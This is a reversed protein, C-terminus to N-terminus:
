EFLGGTIKWSGDIKQLDATMGAGIVRVKATDGNIQADGVEGDVLVNRIVQPLAAHLRGIARLCTTARIPALGLPGTALVSLVKRQAAPTLQGCVKKADGKALGSVATSVTRQAAGADDGGCGAALLAAVALLALSASRMSRRPYRGLAM